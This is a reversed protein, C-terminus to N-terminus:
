TDLSCIYPNHDKAYDRALDRFARQLTRYNRGHFDDIGKLWEALPIDAPETALREVVAIQELTERSPPTQVGLTVFKVSKPKDKKM